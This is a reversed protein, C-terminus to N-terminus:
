GGHLAKRPAGTIEAALKAALSPRLEASRRTVGAVRGPARRMRGAGEVVVSSAGASTPMM